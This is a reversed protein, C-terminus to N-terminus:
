EKARLVTFSTLVAFHDSGGDKVVRADRFALGRGLVHDIEFLAPMPSTSGPWTGGCRAGEGTCAHLWGADRLARLAADDRGENFDGLMLVRETNAYRKVLADAQQVRLAANKQMTTALDDGAFRKAGPPFLHVCAITVDVNDPGLSIRAEMAPMKHPSQAFVAHKVIPHKSFLAVGWTGSRPEIVSHPYGLEKRARKAFSSTVEQMCLVDPSERKIVALTKDVDGGEYLVNFTMATFSPGVSPPAPQGSTALVLALALTNV